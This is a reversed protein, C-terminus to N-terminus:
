MDYTNVDIDIKQTYKLAVIDIPRVGYVGYRATIFCHRQRIHGNRAPTDGPMLWVGVTWVTTLLVDEVGRHYIIDVDTM